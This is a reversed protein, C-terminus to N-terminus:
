EIEDLGASPFGLHREIRFLDGLNFYVQEIQDPWNGYVEHIDAGNWFRGFHQTAATHRYPGIQSM